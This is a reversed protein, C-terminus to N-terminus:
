KDTKQGDVWRDAQGETLKDTQRNTGRGAQVQKSDTQGNIQSATQRDTWGDIWYYYSMMMMMMMM